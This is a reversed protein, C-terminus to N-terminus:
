LPARGPAFTTRLAAGVEAGLWFADWLAGGIGM